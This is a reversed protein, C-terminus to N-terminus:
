YHPPIEDRPSGGPGDDPQASRFQQYLLRIQQQLLDIEKQQRAVTANLADLLEDQFALRVELAEVRNENETNMGAM